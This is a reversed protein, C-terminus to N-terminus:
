CYVFIRYVAPILLLRGAATIPRYRRRGERRTITVYPGMRYGNLLWESVERTARRVCEAACESGIAVIASWDRVQVPRVGAQVTSGEVRGRSPKAIIIINNGRPASNGVAVVVVVVM